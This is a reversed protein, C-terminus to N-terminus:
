TSETEHYHGQKMQRPGTELEERAKSMCRLADALFDNPCNELGDMMIEHAESAWIDVLFRRAPSGASTGQYIIKVADCEPIWEDTRRIMEDIVINKFKVDMLKEGLVYCQVLRCSCALWQSPGPVTLRETYLWNSYVQFTAPEDDTLDITDPDARLSMSDQLAKKFFKANRVLVMEHMPFIQRDTGVAVKIIPCRLSVTDTVTIELMNDSEYEILPSAEQEVTPELAM